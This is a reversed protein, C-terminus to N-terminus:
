TSVTPQLVRALDDLKSLIDSTSKRAEAQINMLLVEHRGLRAEVSRSWTELAGARIGLAEVILKLADVASRLEAVEAASM